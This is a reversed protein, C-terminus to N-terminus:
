QGGMSDMTKRSTVAKSQENRLFHRGYVQTQVVM